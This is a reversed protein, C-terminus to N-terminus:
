LLKMLKRCSHHMISLKAWSLVTARYKLRHIMVAQFFFNRDADKLCIDGSHYYLNGNLKSFAIKKKEANNVYGSTLQSGAIYLEGSKNSVAPIGNEDSLELITGAFPKGICIIGNMEKISGPKCTFSSCFITAETPGYVNHITANPICPQWAYVLDSKLAEGCFLWHQVCPLSIEGFYKRLYNIFSPVTLIHTINEDEILQIAHTYKISSKALLIVSSGKLLPVLYSFVSLDFTLDFVQLFKSQPTIGLHMADVNNVFALLNDTSIPVGKPLGTSGSTFLIYVPNKSHVLKLDTSHKEGQQLLIFRTEHKANLTSTVVSM